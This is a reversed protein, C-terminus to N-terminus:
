EGEHPFRRFGDKYTTCQAPITSAEDNGKVASLETFQGEFLRLLLGNVIPESYAEQPQPASEVLEFIRSFEGGQRNRTRM